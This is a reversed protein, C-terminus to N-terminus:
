VVKIRFVRICIAWDKEKYKLDTAEKSEKRVM